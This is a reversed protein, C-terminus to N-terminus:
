SQWRRRTQEEAYNPRGFTPMTASGGLVLSVPKSVSSWLMMREVTFAL